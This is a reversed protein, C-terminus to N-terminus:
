RAGCGPGCAATSRSAPSWARGSTPRRRLPRRREHRRTRRRRSRGRRAPARRRDRRRSLAPAASSLSSISFILLPPDREGIVGLDRDARRPRRRRGRHHGRRWRPPRPVAGQLRRPRRSGAFDRTVAAAPSSPTRRDPPPRHRLLDHRSPLWPDGPRRPVRDSCRRLVPVRATVACCVDCDFEGSRGTLRAHDTTMCGEVFPSRAHRSVDREADDEGAGAPGPVVVAPEVGLDGAVGADVDVPVDLLRLGASAASISRTKMTSLWNM